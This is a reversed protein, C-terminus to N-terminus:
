KSGGRNSMSKAYKLLRSDVKFGARRLAQANVQINLKNSVQFLNIHIDDQQSSSEVGSVVLVPHSATLLALADRNKKSPEPLYILDCGEAEALSEVFTTKIAKGKIKMKTYIPVLMRHIAVDEYVCLVFPSSSSNESQGKPWDIFRTFREIFMARLLVENVGTNSQLSSGSVVVVALVAFWFSKLTM